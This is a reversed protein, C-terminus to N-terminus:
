KEVQPTLSHINIGFPPIVLRYPLQPSLSTYGCRKDPMQDIKYLTNEPCGFLALADSPIKVEVEQSTDSFNIGVIALQQKYARLFLYLGREGLSKDTHNLGYFLGNAFLPTSATNLLWQYQKRLPHEDRHQSTLWDRLTNISWYDFITTRGDVGSYGEEDMGSEGLEQGFYTMLPNGDILATVCMSPFARQGDGVIFDSALRQEDHNEMFRLLHSKVGEQSQLITDIWDTSGKGKLINILQDYLGVKDYLYDFGASIFENLRTPQYVEGIMILNPYGTKLKQIAWQWFPIPVLEAMDCRFGDVGKSAWFTLIDLMKHWTDPISDFHTAWDGMLDIGYNLKITEYWDNPTPHATFQDNGTAKAPYEHYTTEGSQLTLTEHPLYYFNNNPAFSVTKDDSAGFDEMYNPRNDSAYERSLHNPVFDIIVQLGASHTREILAEFEEMRSDVEVALSPAIDYYDRIAYPSGAEGKVIARNNAPIESGFSSKTAHEIVGTYWVHTCGLERIEKLREPTFDNLKGSGNVELSGNTQKTANLNGYLRPLVQYISIRM